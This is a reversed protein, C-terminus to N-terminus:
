GKAEDTSALRKRDLMLMGRRLGELHPDGSPSQGAKEEEQCEPSNVMEAMGPTSQSRGKKERLNKKRKRM